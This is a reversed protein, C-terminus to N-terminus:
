RFHLIHKFGPSYGCKRTEVAANDVHVRHIHEISKLREPFVFRHFDIPTTANESVSAAKRCCFSRHSWSFFPGRASGVDIFIMLSKYSEPVVVTCLDHMSLADIADTSLVFGIL